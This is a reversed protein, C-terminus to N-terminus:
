AIFTINVGREYTFTNKVIYKTNSGTNYVCIKNEVESFFNITPEQILINGSGRGTLVAFAKEHVASTNQIMIMGSSYPLEVQGGAPLLNVRHFVFGKAMFNGVSIKGQSGEANEGYVHAIDTMQTFASLADKIDIKEIMDKYKQPDDKRLRFYSGNLM